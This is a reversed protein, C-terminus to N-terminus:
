TNIIIGPYVRMMGGGGGGGGCHQMIALESRNLGARLPGIELLSCRPPRMAYVSFTARHTDVNDM